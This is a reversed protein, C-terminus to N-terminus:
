GEAKPLTFRFSTEEETTSVSIEGEHKEIIQKCVSLGLGTGLEKTSIFPEFISDIIHSPIKRGNNIIDVYIYEGDLGAEVRIQRDGCFESLEEVANNMINLVVQKIQEEVGKVFLNKKIEQDVKISEVVFRPYMFNIMEKLLSSINFITMDDGLGRMKSLYLFQTVKDELSDMEKNIISFYYKSQEDLPLKRELLSIFGKISTLPNRFEHAFSASIQGLISLRDSHMENIFMSKENIIQDKKKTYNVVAFYLYVDFFRNVVTIGHLVTAPDSIKEVILENVVERAININKTFDSLDVNAEIRESVIKETLRSILKKNQKRFYVALLRATYNANYIVDEYFPDAQNFRTKELWKNIFIDPNQELLAIIQEIQKPNLKTDVM